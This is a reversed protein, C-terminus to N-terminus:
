YEEGPMEAVDTIEASGDLAKYLTVIVYNTEHGPEVNKEAALIRYNMGAVVQQGIVALPTYDADSNEQAKEYAELIDDTLEVTEPESWGGALNEGGLYTEVGFDSTNILQVNGEADEYIQVVAYTEVPNAVVPAVRCLLLYNHGSVIQSGLYAVPTYTVGVQGELAKDLKAQLEETVVPSDAEEWAGAIIGEIQDIADLSPEENKRCAGLGFLLCLCLVVAAIRKCVNNM